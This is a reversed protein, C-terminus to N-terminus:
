ARLWTHRHFTWPGSEIDQPWPDTNGIRVGSTYMPDFVVRHGHSFMLEASRVIGQGLDSEENTVYDVRLCDVAQSEGLFLHGLRVPLADLGFERYVQLDVAELHRAQLGGHSNVSAFQLYGHELELYAEGM